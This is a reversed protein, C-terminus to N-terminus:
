GVASECIMIVRIKVATGSAAAPSAAYVAETTHFPVPVCPLLATGPPLYLTDEPPSAFATDAYGAIDGKSHGVLAGTTGDGIIWLQVREDDAPAILRAPEAANLVFTKPRVILKRKPRAAPVAGLSIGPEIGALHIRVPPYDEPRPSIV